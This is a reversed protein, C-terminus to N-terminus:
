SLEQGFLRDLIIAVASRVSLHNFHPRGEIPVLLYDAAAVLEDILGWGTGFILLVPRESERHLTARLAAFSLAREGRRASTAVVLPPAGHEREIAERAAALDAATRVLSLADMRHDQGPPPPQAAGGWVSVIRDIKERQAAVPTVAFYGALGYTATSRAIDHIDFNTVASTVIRRNRDYVPHHALAVYSRGAPDAGPERTWLARDEDSFRHRALLDPRREATRMLAQQRRWQRIREHHGSNLIDPVGRERVLAPRTYQPYELLNESFSEEDTSASEGLVGPVYRAVADMLAMAGLEGGTLVFDGVSIEEDIGLESVREDVGEYRGCLLLLHPLGALEIVRKQALPAGAPTLFIRHPAPEVRSGAEIAALLPEAKMVMGPGGGYPADDVTRHRDSTFDRPDIFDVQVLGAARARGFVSADIVSAFMEPFITVVTFRVSM